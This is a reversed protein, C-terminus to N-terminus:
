VAEYNTRNVYQVGFEKSHPPTRINYKLRATRDNKRVAEIMVETMFM